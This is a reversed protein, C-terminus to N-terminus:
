TKYKLYKRTKVPYQSYGGLVLIPLFRFTKPTNQLLLGLSIGLTLISVARRRRLGQGVCRKGLNVWTPSGANMIRKTPCDSCRKRDVAKGYHELWVFSTSWKSLRFEILAIRIEIEDTQRELDGASIRERLARSCRM